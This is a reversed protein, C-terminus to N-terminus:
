NAQGGKKGGSSRVDCRLASATANKPQPRLNYLTNGRLRAREAARLLFKGRGLPVFPLASSTEACALPSLTWFGSYMLKMRAVSSRSKLSIVTVRITGIFGNLPKFRHLLWPFEIPKIFRIISPLLSLSDEHLPILNQSLDASLGVNTIHVRQSTPKPITWLEMFHPM